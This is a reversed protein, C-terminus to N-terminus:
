FLSACVKMQSSLNAAGDYAQSVSNLLYIKLKTLTQQIDECLAAGTISGHM